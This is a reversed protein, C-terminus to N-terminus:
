ISPSSPSLRLSIRLQRSRKSIRSIGIARLTTSSTQEYLLLPPVYIPDNRRLSDDRLALANDTFDERVMSKLAVSTDLVRPM